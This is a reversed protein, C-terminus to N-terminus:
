ADRNSCADRRDHSLWAESPHAENRPDDTENTTESFTHTRVLQGVCVIGM